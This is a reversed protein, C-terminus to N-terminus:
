SPEEVVVDENIDAGHIGLRAGLAPAEVYDCTRKRQRTMKRGQTATLFRSGGELERLEWGELWPYSLCCLLGGLRPFLLKPASRRPRHLHTVCAIPLSLHTPPFPSGNTTAARGRERPRERALRGVSKWEELSLRLRLFYGWEGRGLGDREGERACALPPLRSSWWCICFLLL